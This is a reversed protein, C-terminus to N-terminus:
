QERIKMVLQELDNIFVLVAQEMEAILEDDRQMRKIMISQGDEVRPDFSVFDCWERGTVWLQCQIQKVYTAPVKDRDVYDIHTSTNPCKIEILGDDGILGDPSVGLYGNAEVFGVETVSNGTELEYMLRALPECEHGWEIAASSFGSDAVRGTIREGAKKLIYKRRTQGSGKAMVDAISSATIRGCRIAHWEASGQIIDFHYIPNM